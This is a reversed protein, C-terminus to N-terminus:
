GISRQAMKCSRRRSTVFLSRHKTKKRRDKTRYNRGVTFGDSLKSPIGFPGDEILRAVSIQETGSAESQARNM